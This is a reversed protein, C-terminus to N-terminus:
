ADADISDSGADELGTASLEGELARLEAKLRRAKTAKLSMSSMDAQRLLQARRSIEAENTIEPRAERVQDIYKQWRADRAAQTTGERTPALAATRKRGISGRQQALTRHPM